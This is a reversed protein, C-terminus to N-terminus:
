LVKLLWMFFVLLTTSLFFSPLLYCPIQVTNYMDSPKETWVRKWDFYTLLLLFYLLDSIFLNRKLFKFPLPLNKWFPSLLYLILTPFVSSILFTQAIECLVAEDLIWDDWHCNLHNFFFVFFLKCFYVILKYARDSSYQLQITDAINYLM